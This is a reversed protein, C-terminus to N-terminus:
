NVFSHQKEEVHIHIIGNGNIFFEANDISSKMINFIIYHIEMETIARLPNSISAHKIPGSVSYIIFTDQNQFAKIQSSPPLTSRVLEVRDINEKTVDKFEM